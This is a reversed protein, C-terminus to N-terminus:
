RKWPVALLAIAAYTKVAFPNTALARLYMSLASGRRGASAFGRGATYTCRAIRRRRRLPGISNDLAFHKTVVAREAALHRLISGSANSEHRRYDGLVDGLFAIRYNARAIKMWLEYDEATVFAPNEDFMGVDLLSSRRVTTASTSICNQRLLLNRWTAMEAPGYHMTRPALGGGVWREAHCVLDAGSELAQVSLELKRPLWVDDSDLFAIYSSTARGIGENRGAAIIGHNRFNILTIRPDNFSGVVDETDDESFNNIVLAEWLPFTQNIVSQLAEVLSRAHNYTPIVISVVPAPSTM